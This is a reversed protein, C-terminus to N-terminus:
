LVALSAIIKAVDAPKINTAIGDIFHGITNWLDRGPAPETAAELVWWGAWQSNSQPAAPSGSAVEGGCGDVNNGAKNAGIYTGDIKSKIAIANHINYNKGSVLVWQEDPGIVSRDAFVCKDGINKRLYKGTRWNQIAFIRNGKDIQILFWTEEENRHENSAHIETNTYSQMYRGHVSKIGVMGLNDPSFALGACGFISLTLVMAGCANKITM